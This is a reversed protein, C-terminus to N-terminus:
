TTRYEITEVDAENLIQRALAIDDAWRTAFAEDIDDYNIIVKTIGAQIMVAACKACPQASVYLTANRASTGTRACSLCANEESHVVIKLKIARDAFREPSDIIGRPFGNCGIALVNHDGDVIVAGHQTSPDRSWSRSQKALEMFRRDWDSQM